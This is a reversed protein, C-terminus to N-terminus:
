INAPPTAVYKLEGKQRRCENIYGHDNDAIVRQENTM